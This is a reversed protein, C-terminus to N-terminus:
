TPRLAWFEGAAAPTVLERYHRFLMAESHGAENATKSASGFAALHYSVFSHRVVHIRLPNWSEPEQVPGWYDAIFVAKGAPIVYNTTPHTASCRLEFWRNDALAPLALLLFPLAKM